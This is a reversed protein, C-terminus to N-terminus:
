REGSMDGVNGPSMPERNGFKLDEVWELTRQADLESDRIARRDIPRDVLQSGVKHAPRRVHLTDEDLQVVRVALRKQM